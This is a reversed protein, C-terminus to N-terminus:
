SWIADRTLGSLTPVGLLAMAMRLETELIEVVHTVGAAGHTALGWIYPRGILVADAGLAIAKAIDTGRRIGGDVLLPVQKNVAAAVRPLSHATAPVTDLNRAGHNSVVIAAAGHDIALQAQDPRLVGKVIVPVDVLNVLWELDAWTANSALHPNYLRRHAPTDDALITMDRLNPYSVGDAAGLNNRRDRDRAGLSPTDVTLMLASAGHETARLVFSESFSRDDQLYVQMWWQQELESAAVGLDEIATSGLTSLTWLADAAKAGALTELEARETYSGHTAAPALLIPHRQTRGLLQISTDISSVDVLNKPSLAIEHWARINAALTHEDGAGGSVYAWVEAPLREEALPEFSPVNVIEPLDM